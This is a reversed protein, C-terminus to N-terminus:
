ESLSDSSGTILLGMSVHNALLEILWIL